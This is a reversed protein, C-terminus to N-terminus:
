GEEEEGVGGWGAGRREGICPPPQAYGHCVLERSLYAHVTSSFSVLTLDDSERRQDFILGGKGGKKQIQELDSIRKERRM